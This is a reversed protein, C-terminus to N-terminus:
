SVTSFMASTIVYPHESDNIIRHKVDSLRLARVAREHLRSADTSGHVMVVRCSPLAMAALHGLTARVAREPGLYYLVESLVVCDIGDGVTPTQTDAADMIRVNPLHSTLARAAAIAKPSVDTGVVISDPFREAFALLNHGNACGVEFICTPRPGVAALLQDRKREEYANTIYAWPDASRAFMSDFATARARRTLHHPLLSVLGFATRHIIRGRDRMTTRNDSVPATAGVLVAALALVIFSGIRWVLVAALAVHLPVGIWTLPVVFVLDATILGRPLPGLRVALTTCGAIAAAELFNMADLGGTHAVVALAVVLAAVLSAEAVLVSVITRTAHRALASKKWGSVLARIAIVVALGVAISSALLALGHDPVHGSLLLAIAGITGIALSALLVIPSESERQHARNGGSAAGPSFTTPVRMTRAEYVAARLLADPWPMAPATARSRVAAAAMEAGVIMVIAVALLWSSNVAVAVTSGIEPFVTM